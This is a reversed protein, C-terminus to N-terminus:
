AQIGIHSTCSHQLIELKENMKTINQNISHIQEMGYKQNMLTNCLLKLNNIEDEQKNMKDYIQTLFDEMQDLQIIGRLNVRKSPGINEM